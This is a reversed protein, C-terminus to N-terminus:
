LRPKSLHLLSDKCRISVRFELRPGAFVTTWAFFSSFRTKFRFRFWSPLVVVAFGYGLIEAFCIEVFSPNETDLEVVKISESHLNLTQLEAPSPQPVYQKTNGVM